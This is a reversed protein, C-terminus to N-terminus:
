RATKGKGREAVTIGGIVLVMAIAHHWGFAEGLISVALVTGLVPILNIFLGARNAGILAIGRIYFIQSLIAPFVATYVAVVWGRADPLIGQPSNLEWLAFPISTVLASFAMVIMFTKWHVDPRYRLAISYGAYLVGAVGMLMDGYNFQLAALRELSGNSAVFLVGVFTMSFGVLQLATVRTRFFIFNGIFILLPIAAQEITVNIASTHNLASYLAINFGAFGTVGYALLVPLHPRVRTWERRLQPLGIVLLIAFAMAWRLFTLVMPSVHGVALKGAIANASWFLTTMVLLAYALSASGEEASPAASKATTNM